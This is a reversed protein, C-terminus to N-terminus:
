EGYKRKLDARAEMEELGKLEKLLKTALEEAEGFNLAEHPTDMYFDVLRNKKDIEFIM